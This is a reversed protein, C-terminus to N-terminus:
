KLNLGPGDGSIGVNRHDGWDSVDVINMLTTPVTGSARLAFPNAIGILAPSSELRSAHPTWSAIWKGRHHGLPHPSQM